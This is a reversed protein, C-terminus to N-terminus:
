KMANQKNIINLLRDYVWASLKPDIRKFFLSENGGCPDDCGGSDSHRHRCSRKLSYNVAFYTEHKSKSRRYITFVDFGTTKSLECDIGQGFGLNTVNVTKEYIDNHVEDCEEYYALRYKVGQKSNNEVVHAVDKETEKLSTYIIIEDGPISSKEIEMLEQLTLINYKGLSRTWAANLKKRYCMGCLNRVTDDANHKNSFHDWIFSIMCITIIYATLMWLKSIDQEHLIRLQDDISTSPLTNKLEVITANMLRKYAYYLIFSIILIAPFVSTSEVRKLADKLHPLVRLNNEPEISM